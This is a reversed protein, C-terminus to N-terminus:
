EAFIDLRESLRGYINVNKLTAPLSKHDIYVIFPGGLLRTHFINLAFVVAGAQKEITRYTRESRKLKCNAFQAIAM